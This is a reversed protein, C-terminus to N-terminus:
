ARPPRYLSTPFTEVSLSYIASIKSDAVQPPLQAQNSNLSFAPSACISHTCQGESCEQQHQQDAHEASNAKDQQHIEHSKMDMTCVAHDSLGNITAALVAELPGALLMIALLLSLPNKINTIMRIYSVVLGYSNAIRIHCM